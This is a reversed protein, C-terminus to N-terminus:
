ISDKSSFLNNFTKILPRGKGSQSSQHLCEEQCLINYVEKASPRNSFVPDWCRMMLDIIKGSARVEKGYDDYKTHPRNHEKVVKKMFAAKSMGTFPTVGTLLEYLIIGFGYVDVRENYPQCLAVEPAMYRLSGTCGTLQYVTDFTIDKNVCICLGFDM